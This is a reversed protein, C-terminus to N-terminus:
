KGRERLFNTMCEVPDNVLLKADYKYLEDFAREVIEESRIGYEKEIWMEEHTAFAEDVLSKLYHNYDYTSLFYEYHAEEIKDIDILM